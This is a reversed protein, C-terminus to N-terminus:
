SSSTVQGGIASLVEEGNLEQDRPAHTPTTVTQQTASLVIPNNSSGENKEAFIQEISAATIVLFPQAGALKMAVVDKLIISTGVVLYHAFRKMVPEHISAHMEGTPDVMVVSADTECASIERIQVLMIRVKQSHTIECVRRIPWEALEVTQVVAKATSPKYASINLHELMAAWTGGEFDMGNSQEHRFRRSLPTKFPSAPRQTAAISALGNEQADNLVGAPGPIAQRKQLLSSAQKRSDRIVTTTIDNARDITRSSARSEPNRPTLFAQSSVTSQQRSPLVSSSPRVGSVTSAEAARTSSLQQERQTHAAVVGTDQTSSSNSEELIVLDSEDLLQDFIDEDDMGFDVGDFDDVTQRQQPIQAEKQKEMGDASGHKSSIAPRKAQPQEIQKAERLKRLAEQLSSNM